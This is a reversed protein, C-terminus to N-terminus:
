RQAIAMSPYHEAVPTQQARHVSEQKTQTMQMVNQLSCAFLLSATSSRHATHTESTCNTLDQGPLAPAHFNRASVDGIQVTIQDIRKGLEDESQKSRKYALCDTLQRRTEDQNRINDDHEDRETELSQFRM